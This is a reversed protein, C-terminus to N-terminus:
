ADLDLGAKELLGWIVADRGYVDKYLRIQGTEDPFATFYVLHVPVEPTLKLWTEKGTNLAREFVAQPNETQVSLLQYALDFPDGIRICGHSYARSQNAFLHKTPTDHLYINWQNPFIFKVKGLANDDSPKQRMRYPFSSATYRAFDINDRPVVNGNGDVIDIHSVAYRNAKLQPLYEKITISRPVNWRPNVVLYEMQDSFEPTQMESEAKGVVVRTQFVEHGKEFIRAKYEPINVWVMRDDLAEGTMWRMRELAVIIARTRANMGDSNLQRITNPGAVGDPNLGVAEQYRAVEASLAEDYLRPDTVQEAKLGISALRARLLAIGEDSMGLRWVAEPAKPLDAPVSMVQAEHLAAQLQEYAEHQPGLEALYDAPNDSAVFEAMLQAVAPRRVERHIGPVSRAPDIVGGTLDRIMRALTRAYVMESTFDQGASDLSDPRYRSTPIGHSPMTEIADRLAQRRVEGEPGTFIPKLGNGGYFAALAPHSAVAEALAMEDPSFHLRPSVAVTTGGSQMVSSQAVAVQAGCIIMAAALIVSFGSRRM